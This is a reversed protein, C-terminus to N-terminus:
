LASGVREDGRYRADETVRVAGGGGLRFRSTRNDSFVVVLMASLTRRRVVRCRADAAAVGVVSPVASWGISKSVSESLSADGGFFRTITITAGGGGAARTLGVAFAFAFIRSSFGGWQFSTSTCATAALLAATLSARTHIPRTRHMAETHTRSSLTQSQEMRHTATRAKEEAKRDLRSGQRHKSDVVSHQASERVLDVSVAHFNM